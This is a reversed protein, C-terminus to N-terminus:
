PLHDPPKTAGSRRAGSFGSSDVGAAELFDTVVGETLRRGTFPRAVLEADFRNALAFFDSYSFTANIFKKRFLFRLRSPDESAESLKWM